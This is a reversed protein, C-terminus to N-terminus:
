QSTTTLNTPASPGPQQQATGTLPHPYTYPTYYVTWTNTPNCVYLTNTDTAWYGVGPTNGGPGATCTSPRAAALGQGIGKTGNFTGAEGYAGFQQYYDRNDSLNGNTTDSLIGQTDYNFGGPSYTNGWVYVPDLVQHPWTQTGTTSNVISPFIIGTLMNGASRGPADLCPYGNNSTNGDWASTVGTQTNGCYGWGTPPPSQSYTAGSQRVISLQTVWRIGSITNGWVLSPGANVSQIAGGNAIPSSFNSQYVEAARCGRGQDHTGHNAIGGTPLVATVYRLVWRGGNSCDSIWGNNFRTDEVYFFQSSGFHDTDVWSADGTTDIAGNWNGGNLFSFDNTIISSAADFYNHDAVGLISSTPNLQVVKNGSTSSYFHCHDVRVATSPGNFGIMGQGNVSSSGNQLLAIGTFRFSKGATTTITFLGNGSTNDIITTVDTGATSAGGALSYVAGAGQITVSTKFTVSIGSSGTWTCSGAPIVIIDGDAPSALESNIAAQVAAQTCSAATYTSGFTNSCLGLFIFIILKKM